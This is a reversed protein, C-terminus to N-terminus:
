TGISYPDNNEFVISYLEIYLVVTRGTMHTQSQKITCVDM